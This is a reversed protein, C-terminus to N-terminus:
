SCRWLSFKEEVKIDLYLFTRAQRRVADLNTDKAFM